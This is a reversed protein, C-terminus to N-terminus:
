VNRDKRGSLAWKVWIAVVSGSVWISWLWSIVNDLEAQTM